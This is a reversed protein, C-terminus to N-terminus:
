RAGRQTGRDPPATAVRVTRCRRYEEVWAETQEDRQRRLKPAAVEVDHGPSVDLFRLADNTAAPVDLILDEYDIVWPQIANDAFYTSWAKEHAHAQQLLREVATIDLAPPPVVAPADGVVQAWEGTVAARWWSLAQRLKDRRRLWLYRARPFMSNMLETRALGSFAPVSAAKTLVEDFYGWMMKVGFVGNPTATARQVTAIYDGYNTVGWPQSWYPEDGRWFYEAPAGALGTSELAHCLLWSGTRPVTCIVYGRLPADPSRDPDGAPPLVIQALDHRV